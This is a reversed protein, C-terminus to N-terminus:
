ETEEVPTRIPDDLENKRAPERKIAIMGTWNLWKFFQDIRQFGAWQLMRINRSVTMPLLVGRLSRAKSLIMEDSLGSQSKYDWHLENWMSETQASDAHVKEILILAGGVRLDRFINKVVTYRDELSLFQLTYLAVVLDARDFRAFERVDQHLIRVNSIDKLKLNAETVMTQSQEIGVLKVGEKQRHKHALRYLTEGTSAGIDYIVSEDRVFFESLEIVLDQLEDYFPVSKKVHSDFSKAVKEDFRWEGPVASIIEDVPKAPTDM